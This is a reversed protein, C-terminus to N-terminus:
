AKATWPLMDHYCEAKANHREGLLTLIAAAWAAPNENHQVHWAGPTGNRGLYEEASGADSTVIKCGCALLIPLPGAAVQYENCVVAVRASAICALDCNGKAITYEEINRGIRAAMDVGYDTEAVFLVSETKKFPGGMDPVPPEAIIVREPSLGDPVIRKFIEWERRSQVWAEGIMADVPLPPPASFAKGTRTAVPSANIRPRWYLCTPTGPPLGPRYETFRPEGDYIFQM